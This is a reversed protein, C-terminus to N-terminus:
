PKEVPLTATIRWGRIIEEVIWEPLKMPKTACGDWVKGNAVAVYHGGRKDGQERIHIIGFFDKTPWKRTSKRRDPCKFGLERLVAVLERTYSGHHHGFMSEIKKLSAGTLVAVAIQGCNRHNHQKIWRM